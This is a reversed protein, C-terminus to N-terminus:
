TEIVQVTTTAEAFVSGAVFAHTRLAANLTDAGQKSLLLKTGGLVLEGAQGSLQLGSLDVTFLTIRWNPDHNVTAIVRPNADIKVAFDGVTVSKLALPRVFKLGGNHKITGAFFAAPDLSGGVIPMSTKITLPKLSIKDLKTGDVPLPLILNKLLAKGVEPTSVTTTTGGIVKLKGTAAAAVPAAKVPAVASAPAAGLSLTLGALAAVVLPLRRGLRSEPM